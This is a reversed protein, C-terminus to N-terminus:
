PTTAVVHDGALFLHTPHSVTFCVQEATWGMREVAVVQIKKKSKKNIDIVLAFVGSITCHLRVLGNLSSGM